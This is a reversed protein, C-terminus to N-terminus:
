HRGGAVILVTRNASRLTEAQREQLRALAPEVLNLSAAVAEAQRAQGQEIERRLQEILNPPLRLESPANTIAVDSTLSNGTEAARPGIVLGLSTIVLTGAFRFRRLTTFTKMFM